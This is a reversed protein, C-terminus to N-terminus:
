NGELLEPNEHINGIVKSGTFYGNSIVMWVHPDWMNKVLYKDSQKCGETTVEIIDGEYIEKGSADKRGTYQEVIYEELSMEALAFIHSARGYVMEQMPGKPGFPMHWARFKIERSM